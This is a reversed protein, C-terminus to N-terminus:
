NKILKSEGFNQHDVEDDYDGYDSHPDGEKIKSGNLYIEGNSYIAGNELFNIETGKEVILVYDKPIFLTNEIFYVGDIKEDRNLVFQEVDNLSHEEVLKCLVDFLKLNM